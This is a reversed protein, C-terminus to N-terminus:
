ETVQILHVQYSGSNDDYDTDDVWFHIRNQKAKFSLSQYQHDPHYTGDCVSINQSNKLSLAKSLPKDKNFEYCADTALKENNQIWKGLNVFGSVKIQYNKGLVLTISDTPTGDSSVDGTWVVTEAFGGSVFALSCALLLFLYKM